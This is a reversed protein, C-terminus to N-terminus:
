KGEKIFRTHNHLLLLFSCKLRNLIKKSTKFNFLQVIAFAIPLINSNGDQAVAILLVGGYKVYLHMSDVFVFSKCHKFAEVCSPFAWFVKDFMCCDRVMLHGEYYPKVRLDCITGPFCIQLAQLLKLVKNYLEEWDGYIRVIAKQKAMWVKRYSPKFHYSAQIASQLVPISVSPNSLIQSELSLGCPPEM